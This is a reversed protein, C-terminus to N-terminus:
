SEIQKKTTQTLTFEVDEVELFIEEITKFEMESIMCLWTDGKVLYNNEIHFGEFLVRDKAEQYEKILKTEEESDDINTYKHVGTREPLEELFNGDLDCPVFMGITLPQKLFLAYNVIKQLLEHNSDDINKNQYLVFDTMSILKSGSM